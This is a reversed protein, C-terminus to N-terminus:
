DSLPRLGRNVKVRLRKIAGQLGRQGRGGARGLVHSLSV